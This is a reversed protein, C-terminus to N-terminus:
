HLRSFLNEFPIHLVPFYMLILVFSILLSTSFGKEECNRAKRRHNWGALGKAPVQEQGWWAGHLPQTQFALQIGTSFNLLLWQPVRQLRGLEFVLAKCSTPLLSFCSHSSAPSLLQKEAMLQLLFLGLKQIAHLPSSWHTCPLLITEEQPPSLRQEPARAGAKARCALQHTDKPLDSLM